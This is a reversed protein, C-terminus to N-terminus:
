AMGCQINQKISKLFAIATVHVGCNYSPRLQYSASNVATATAPLTCFSIVNSPRKQSIVCMSRSSRENKKPNLWSGKSWTLHSDTPRDLTGKTCSAHVCELKKRFCNPIIFLLSYCIPGGTQIYFHCEVLRVKQSLLEVTIRSKIPTCVKLPQTLWSSSSKRTKWISM